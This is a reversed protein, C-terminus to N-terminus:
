RNETNTKGYHKENTKGKNDLFNRRPVALRDPRGDSEPVFCNRRLYHFWDRGCGRLDLFKTKWWALNLLLLAKGHSGEQGIHVPGDEGDVFEVTLSFAAEDKPNQEPSGNM